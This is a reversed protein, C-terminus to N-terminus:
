RKSCLRARSGLQARIVQPIARRRDSLGFSTPWRLCKGGLVDVGGFWEGLELLSTVDVVDGSQGEVVLCAVPIQVEVGNALVRQVQEVVPFQRRFARVGEGAGGLEQESHSQLHGPALFAEGADPAGVLERHDGADLLDLSEEFFHARELVARDEHETVARTQADGFRHLDPDGVDVRVAHEDPYDLALAALVPVDGGRFWVGRFRMNWFRASPARRCLRAIGEARLVGPGGKVPAKPCGWGEFGM